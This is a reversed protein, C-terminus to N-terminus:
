GALFFLRSHACPLPFWGASRCPQVRCPIAAHAGAMSIKLRRANQKPQPNFRYAELGALRILGRLEDTSVLVADGWDTRILMPTLQTHQMPYPRGKRGIGVGYTVLQRAALGRDILPNPPDVSRKSPYSQKSGGETLRTSFRVLCARRVPLGFSIRTLRSTRSCGISMSSAARVFAFSGCRAQGCKRTQHTLLFTRWPNQSKERTTFDTGKAPYGVSISMSPPM